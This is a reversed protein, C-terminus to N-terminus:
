ANVFAQKLTELHGAISGDIITEDVKLRAGGILSIDVSSQIDAGQAIKELQARMLAGLPYATAIEITAAGYKDAWVRDFAQLVGKARHLEQRQALLAVFAKMTSTVTEVTAGELRDVLVQAVRLDTSAM